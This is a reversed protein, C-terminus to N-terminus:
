HCPHLKIGGEETVTRRGEGSHVPSFRKPEELHQMSQPPDEGRPEPIDRVSLPIRDRQIGGAVRSGGWSEGRSEEPSPGADEGEKQHYQVSRISELGTKSSLAKGGKRAEGGLRSTRTSVQGRSSHTLTSNKRHKGKKKEQTGKKEGKQYTPAVPIKGKSNRLLTKKKNKLL